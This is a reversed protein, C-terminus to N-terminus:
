KYQLLYLKARTLFSHFSMCIAMILGPMGDLLGLKMFYNVIFKGVPYMIIKGFSSRVGHKYFEEADLTTWRSIRAIFEVVTPHPYHYLPEILEGTPGKIKWVEHVRREWKGATKKGLKLLKINKTEGYQLWKGLFFDNRKFYYADQKPFQLTNKIEIQLKESVEEDADIFLVWESKAEKLGQNRLTSFDKNEASHIVRLKEKSVIQQAKKVTEDTSNDILIIEDLWGLSRLCRDINDAENHTLVVASITSNKDM